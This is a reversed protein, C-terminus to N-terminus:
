GVLGFAEVTDSTDVGSPKKAGGVLWIMNHLVVAGLGHRPTPMPPAPAWADSAPNYEWAEPHVRGGNDFYEGGFVYLRRRRACCVGDSGIRREEGALQM